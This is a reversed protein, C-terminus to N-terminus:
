NMLLTKRDDERQTNGDSASILGTRTPLTEVAAVADDDDDHEVM